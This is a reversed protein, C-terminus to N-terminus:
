SAQKKSFFKYKVKSDSSPKQNVLAKLWFYLNAFSVSLLVAAIREENLDDPQSFLHALKQMFGNPKSIRVISQAIFFSALILICFHIPMKMNVNERKIHKSPLFFYYGYLTIITMYSLIMISFQTATIEKDFIYINYFKSSEKVLLELYSFNFGLPIVLILLIFILGVTIKENNIFSMILLLPSITLIFPFSFSLFVSILFAISYFNVINYKFRM